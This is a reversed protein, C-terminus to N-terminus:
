KTELPICCTFSGLSTVQWSDSDFWQLLIMPNQMGVPGQSHEWIKGPVTHRILNQSEFLLIVSFACEKKKKESNAWPLSPLFVFKKARYLSGSGSWKGQDPFHKRKWVSEGLRMLSIEVVDSKKNSNNRRQLRGKTESIEWWQSDESRELTGQLEGCECWVNFRCNWGLGSAWTEM